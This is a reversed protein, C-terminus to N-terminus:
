SGAELHTYLIGASWPVWTYIPVLTYPVGPNANAWAAAADREASLDRLQVFITAGAPTPQVRANDRGLITCMWEALTAQDMIMGGVAEIFQNIPFNPGPDTHGGYPFAREAERHTTIGRVGSQLGFADVYQVPVNYRACLAATLSAAKILVAISYDDHWEAESQAAYGALEIHLGNHNVGNAGYTVDNDWACRIASDNDVAFHTSAQKDTVAFFNACWEASDPREPFEMDHIVVYDIIRGNTPRYWRCRVFPLSELDLM